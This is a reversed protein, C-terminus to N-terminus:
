PARPSSWSRAPEVVLARTQRQHEVDQESGLRQGARNAIRYRPGAVLGLSQVAHAPRRRSGLVEITARGLATALRYRESAAGTRAQEYLRRAGAIDGAFALCRM